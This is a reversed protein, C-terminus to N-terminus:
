LELNLNIKMKFLSVVFLVIIFRIREFVFRGTSRNVPKSGAAGVRIVRIRRADPKIRTLVETFTANQQRTDRILQEPQRRSRATPNYWRRVLVRGVSFKGFHGGSAPSSM